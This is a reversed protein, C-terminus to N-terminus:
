PTPSWSSSELIEKFQRVSEEFDDRDVSYYHAFFRAPVRPARRRTLFLADEIQRALITLQDALDPNSPDRVAAACSDYVLSCLRDREAAIAFQERCTEFGLMLIGLSPVFWRLVLETLSIQQITGLTMGLLAWAGVSVAVTNAYRRRIRLGWALNQREKVLINFPHPLNPMEYWDRLAHETGKYKRSLQRVDEARVPAGAVASNWPIQFLQVYFMEQLVAATHLKKDVHRQVLGAYTLAWLAGAITIPLASVHFFPVAVGAVSIILSISLRLTVLRKVRSHVVSVARLM